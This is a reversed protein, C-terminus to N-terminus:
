SPERVRADRDAHGRDERTLLVADTDELEVARVLEVKRAEDESM